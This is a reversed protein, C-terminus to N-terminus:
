LAFVATFAPSKMKLPYDRTFDVWANAQLSVYGGVRIVFTAVFVIQTVILQMMERNLENTFTRRIIRILM